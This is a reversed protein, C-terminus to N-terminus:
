VTFIAELNWSICSQVAGPCSCIHETVHDYPGEVYLLVSVLISRASQRIIWSVFCVNVYIKDCNM